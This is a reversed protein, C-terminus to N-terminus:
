WSYIVGVGAALQDASGRDDVLPSDEADSLLRSYRIGAALHWHQSLHMVLVPFVRFDRVGGEAAFIPLGSRAADSANVSFYTAMYDDDAFTIGAGLGLDFRKGLPGWARAFVDIVFGEHEGGVDHTFTVGARFRQRRNSPNVYKFGILLGAEFTADIDAMRDVVDDEVDDRGRRFRLAPGIQVQPHDILNSTLLPGSLQMFREGGLGLRGTPGIALTYDDSGLYDPVTAIGIGIFNPVIDIVIPTDQALVPHAVFLGLLLAISAYRRM